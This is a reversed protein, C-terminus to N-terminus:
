NIHKPMVKKAGEFKAKECALLLTEKTKAINGDSDKWVKLALGIAIPKVRMLGTIENPLETVSLQAYVFAPTKGMAKAIGVVAEGQSFGKRTWLDRERKILDAIDLKISTVVVPNIGPM